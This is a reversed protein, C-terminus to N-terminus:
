LIQPFAGTYEKVPSSSSSSSSSSASSPSSTARSPSAAAVTIRHLQQLLPAFYLPLSTQRLLQWLSLGLPLRVLHPHFPYVARPDLRPLRAQVLPPQFISGQHPLQAVVRPQMQVLDFQVVQPLFLL